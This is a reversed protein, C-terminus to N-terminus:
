VSKPNARLDLILRIFETLELRQPSTSDDNNNQMEDTKLRTSILKTFLNDIKEKDPEERDNLFAYFSAKHVDSKSLSGIRDYDFAYFFKQLFDLTEFSLKSGADEEIRSLEIKDARTLKNSVSYEAYDMQDNMEMWTKMLIHMDHLSHAIICPLINGGTLLYVIGYWFGIITQSITVVKNEVQSVKPSIHVLGFLIAQSFLTFELSHSYQMITSPVFGRFVIEECIGSMSAIMISFIMALSAPTVPQLTQHDSVNEDNLLNNNIRRGFLNIVMDMTSFNVLAFDRNDSRSALTGALIVPVAALSGKIVPVIDLNPQTDYLKGWGFITNVDITLGSSALIIATAISASSLLFLQSLFTLRVSDMHIGNKDMHIGNKLNETIKEQLDRKKSSFDSVFDDISETYDIVHLFTKSEIPSYHGLQQYKQNFAKMIPFAKVSPLSIWLLYPLLLSCKRLQPM